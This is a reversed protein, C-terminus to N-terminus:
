LRSIQMLHCHTLSYLASRHLLFQGRHDTSGPREDSPVRGSKLFWAERWSFKRSWGVNQLSKAQTKAIKARHDRDRSKLTQVEKAAKSTAEIKSLDGRNESVLCRLLIDRPVNAKAKCNKFQLQCHIM